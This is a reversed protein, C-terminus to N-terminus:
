EKKGMDFNILPMFPIYSKPNYNLLGIQLSGDMNLVGIQIGTDRASFNGIGVQLGYNQEILNILSVSLFYNKETCATLGCQLFYNKKVTMGYFKSFKVFFFIWAVKQKIVRRFSFCM